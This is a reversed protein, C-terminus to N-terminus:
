RSAVQCLIELEVLPMPRTKDEDDEEEVVEVVPAEGPEEPAPVVAAAFARAAWEDVAFVLLESASLAAVMQM